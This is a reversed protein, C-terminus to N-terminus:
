QVGPAPPAPVIGLRQLREADRASGTRLWREYLRLLDSHTSAPATKESVAHLVDVFAPFKESLEAFVPALMRESQRSLSGYAYEGMSVCYGVDVLRRALSEAFFGSVFLAADGLQQLQERQRPLPEDLAQLLRLAMAERDAGARGADPRVYACLVNVVYAATLEDSRVHCAVMAERVLGDFFARPTEHPFLAADSM